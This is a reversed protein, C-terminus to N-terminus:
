PAVQQRQVYQELATSMRAYSGALNTAMEDLDAGEGGTFRGIWCLTCTGDSEPKLQLEATYTKMGLPEGETLSYSLSRQSRDLHDLREGLRGLGPIDLYRIMGIGDGVVEYPVNIPNWEIFAGYDELVAWAADIPVALTQQYNMERM